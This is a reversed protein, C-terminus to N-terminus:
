VTVILFQGAAYDYVRGGLMSRKAGQAVLSMVPEAVNGLPATTRTTSFVKIGDVQRPRSSGAALRGILDRLEALDAMAGTLWARILCSSARILSPCRGPAPHSPLLWVVKARLFGM